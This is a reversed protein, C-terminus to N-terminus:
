GVAKGGAVNWVDLVWCMHSHDDNARLHDLVVRNDCGAEELADALIPLRDFARDALIADRLAVVPETLWTPSFFPVNLFSAVAEAIARRWDAFYTLCDHPTQWVANFYGDIMDATVAGRHRAIDRLLREFQDLVEGVSETSQEACWGTLHRASVEFANLGCCGPVCYLECPHFLRRLSFPVYLDLTPPPFAAV